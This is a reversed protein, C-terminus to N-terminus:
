RRWVGSKGPPMWVRLMRDGELRVINLTGGALARSEVLAYPAPAAGLVSGPQAADAVSPAASSSAGHGSGAAVREVWYAAADLGNGRTSGNTGNTSGNTSGNISSNTSSGHGNTAALGNGNLKQAM